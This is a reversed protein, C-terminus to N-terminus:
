SLCRSGGHIMDFETMYENLWVQSIDSSQNEESVDSFIVTSKGSSCGGDSPLSYKEKYNNFLEYLADKLQRKMRSALVTDEYMREMTFEVYGLKFRPDLVVGMFILKNM